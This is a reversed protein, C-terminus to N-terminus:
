KYCHEVLLELVVNIGSLDYVLTQVTNNPPVLKFIAQQNTRLKKVFDVPQSSFVARKDTSIEWEMLSERGNDFQVTVPMVMLVDAAQWETLTAKWDIYVDTKGSRCMIVLEPRRRLGSTDVIEEIAHNKLYMINDGASSRRKIVEWFGYKELIEKEKEAKEPALLGASGALSDYCFLREIRNKFRTCTQLKEETTPETEEEAAENETQATNQAQATQPVASIVWLAVLAVPLVIRILSLLSVHKM